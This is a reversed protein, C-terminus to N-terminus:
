KKVTKYKKLIKQTLRVATAPSIFFQSAPCNKLVYDLAAPLSSGTLNEIVSVKNNIEEFMERRRDRRMGMRGHRLVRIVRLAYEYTVYYAPAPRLAAQRSIESWTIEDNGHTTKMAAIVQRAAALFNDNRQQILDLM